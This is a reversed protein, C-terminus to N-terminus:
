YSQSFSSLVDNRCIYNATLGKRCNVLSEEITKLISKSFSNGRVIFLYDSVGKGYHEPRSIIIKGASRGVRIILLDGKKVTQYNKLKGLDAFKRLSINGSKNNFHLVELKQTISGLNEEDFLKTNDIGRYVVDLSNNFTPKSFSYLNETIRNKRYVGIFQRTRVESGSFYKSSDGLHVIDFFNFFTIRFDEFKESTFVNEPLLAGFMDGDRLLSLNSILMSAEVRNLKTLKNQDFEKYYDTCDVIAEKYDNYGFPPNALVLRSGEVFQIEKKLESINLANIQHVIWESDITENLESIDVCIYRANKWKIKAASILNGSGACIDVVNAPVFDDPIKAIIESAVKNPTYYQSWDKM